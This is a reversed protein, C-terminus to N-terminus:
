WFSLAELIREWLGAPEENPLSTDNKDRVITVEGEGPRALGFRTRIEEEIGRESSLAEVATHIRLEKEQLSQLEQESTQREDSAETFKQYMGWAARVSFFFLLILVIVGLISVGLWLLEEVRGRRNKTFDRM